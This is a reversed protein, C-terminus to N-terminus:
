KLMIATLCSSEQQNFPAAILLNQKICWNYALKEWLDEQKTFPLRIGYHSYSIAWRNELKLIRPKYM